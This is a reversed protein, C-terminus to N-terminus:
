LRPVGTSSVHKLMEGSSVFTEELVDHDSRVNCDADTDTEHRVLMDPQYDDDSDQWSVETVDHM